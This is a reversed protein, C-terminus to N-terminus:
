QTGGLATGVLAELEAVAQHYEATLRVAEIEYRNLTLENNILTTYDVRGVQYASLASEVAARAQPLVANAYLQSLSRARDATAKLETLRAFTENYLDREKASAM